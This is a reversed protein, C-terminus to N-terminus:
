DPQKQKCNESQYQVSVKSIENKYLASLSETQSISLATPDCGHIWKEAKEIERIASEKTGEKWDGFIKEESITTEILLRYTILSEGGVPNTDENEEVTELATCIIAHYPITYETGDVPVTISKTEGAKVKPYFALMKIRDHHTAYDSFIWEGNVKQIAM